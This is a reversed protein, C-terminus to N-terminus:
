YCCSISLVEQDFAALSMPKATETGNYPLQNIRIIWHLQTGDASSTLLVFSCCKLAQIKALWGSVTLGVSAICSLSADPYWGTFVAARCQVKGVAFVHDLILAHVNYYPWQTSKRECFLRLVLDASANVTHQM